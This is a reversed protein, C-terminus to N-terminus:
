HNHNSPQTQLPNHFLISIIRHSIQPSRIPMKSRPSIIQNLLISIPKLSPISAFNRKLSARKTAPLLCDVRRPLIPEYTTSFIQHGHFLQVPTASLFHNLPSEFSNPNENQDSSIQCPKPHFLPVTAQISAKCRMALIQFGFVIKM